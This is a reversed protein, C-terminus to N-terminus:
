MLVLLLYRHLVYSFFSFVRRSTQERVEGLRLCFPLLVRVCQLLLSCIARWGGVSCPCVQLLLSCIARWGGVANREADLTLCASRGDTDTM